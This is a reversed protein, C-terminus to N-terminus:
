CEAKVPNSGLIFASLILPVIQQYSVTTHLNELDDSLPTDSIESKASKAIRNNIQCWDWEKCPTKLLHDNTKYGCLNMKWATGFSRSGCGHCRWNLPYYQLNASSGSNGRVRRINLQEVNLKWLTPGWFLHQCFLPSWKIPQFLPTCIRLTMLYHCTLFRPNPM